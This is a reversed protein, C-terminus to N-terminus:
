EDLPRAKKRKAKRKAELTQRINGPAGAVLAHEDNLLQQASKTQADWRHDAPVAQATSGFAIALAMAGLAPLYFVRPSNM